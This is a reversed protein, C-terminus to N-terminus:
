AKKVAITKVKAGATESKPVRVTLVGKDFGADIRSEDIHAPLRFSRQFSGYRRETIHFAKDKEEGEERKEGKISLVDDALTVEVDGDDMGPLEVTITLAEESESVDVDPTLARWSRGFARPFNGGPLGRMVNEFLDDIEHRLDLFPHMGSWRAAGRAPPTSKQGQKDDKTAM